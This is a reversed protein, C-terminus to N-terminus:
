KNLAAFWSVVKQGDMMSFKHQYITSRIEPPLNPFLKALYPEALQLCVLYVFPLIIWEYYEDSYNCFWPETNILLEDALTLELYLRSNRIKEPWPNTKFPIVTNIKERM